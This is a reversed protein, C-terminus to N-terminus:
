IEKEAGRGPPAPVASWGGGAAMLCAIRRGRDIMVLSWTDAAPNRYLVMIKAGDESLLGLQEPAEGHDKRLAQDVAEISGCAASNDAVPTAWSFAALIAATAILLLRAIM